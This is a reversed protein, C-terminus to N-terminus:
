LVRFSELQEADHTWSDVGYVTFYLDCSLKMQLQILWVAITASKTRREKLQMEKKKKKKKKKEMEGEHIGIYSQVKICAKLEISCQPWCCDKLFFLICTAVLVCHLQKNIFIIILWQWSRCSDRKKDLFLDKTGENESSSM